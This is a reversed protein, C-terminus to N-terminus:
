VVCVMTEKEGDKSVVCDFVGPVIWGLVGPVGAFAHPVITEFVVRVERAIRELDNDMEFRYVNESM